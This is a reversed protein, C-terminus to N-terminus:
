QTWHYPLCPKHNVELTREATQNYPVVSSDNVSTKQRKSKQGFKALIPDIYVFPFVPPCPTRMRCVLLRPYPIQLCSPLDYYQQADCQQRPFLHVFQQSISGDINSTVTSLCNTMMENM